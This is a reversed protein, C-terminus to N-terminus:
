RAEPSRRALVAALRAATAAPEDVIQRWTTRIVLYGASQLVADRERDRDFKRRSRHFAFGDVEVVVRAAHWVADVRFRGILVDTAPAPLDADRVLALFRAEAESRSRRPGDAADLVDRLVARGRTGPRRGMASRVATIRLGHLAVAEAVARELESAALHEALDVLTRALSTVPLTSRRARDVPDLRTTRRVRVGARTRPPPGLVLVEVPAAADLPLVQWLAGASRGAIWGAGRLTLLAAAFPANPHDAPRGVAYVGRATRLLTGRAVRGAIASRGLGLDTLQRRSVVGFQDAALAGVRGDVPRAHRPPEGQPVDIEPTSPRPARRRAHSVHRDDIENRATARPRREDQGSGM